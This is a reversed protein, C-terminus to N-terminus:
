EKSAISLIGGIRAASEKALALVVDAQESSFDDTVWDIGVVSTVKGHADFVPCRVYSRVGQDKWWKYTPTNEQTMNVANICEGKLLSSVENHFFSVPVNQAVMMQSSIGPALQENTRSTYLFRMGQVDKKEDHFKSLIARSGGAKALLAILEDDIKKSVAAATGVDVTSATQSITTILKGAGEPNTAIIYVSGVWTVFVLMALMEVILRVTSRSRLYEFFKELVTDM